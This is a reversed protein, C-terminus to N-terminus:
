SGKGAGAKTVRREIMFNVSRGPLPRALDVPQTESAPRWEFGDRAYLTFVCQRRDGNVIVALRGGGSDGLLMVLRHRGPDNWDSEGLPAGTETLWTVDPIASADSPEGTLFHTDSLAPFARRMASLALTYRELAEDRDAWDLWTIANDQAYANNNGQQTRGFEDGATLMITGRSAFLTALLARQDDFRAEGIQADDTEGEVGNNWSLNDNHGDRNQEGNGANHKKEYAVLDALTMGDHAAIFNVSRSVTQGERGFVDSSGALRTALAGIVGADGRWFRRVDDRYRDNWELYPSRFNGLQYGNPGIDWPEAILVRDCLVPDGAIAELLPANADFTGDVRGLVPALDFRFGDVGAFRVFHRLTDLVMERVVPHDCALTNGTGTDNALRGGPLHRYYAQADLGRLSLTPGLRDSEGTHNFVLDLITGIGAKRLAAVTDRLEVLGGPALRPDLAMFTVPNYGWANSLGLPPLHREDISATIPMLEVASVGLRKLHEIIAPHALAAVTGRHAEPVDPHLRTFSRVNFEYILGGPQFLPPKSPLPKPLPRAIAKPMLPATDVGEKRKAALRWHYRYPRDIEIAYPDTLLKDPDFWFGHEPAYDGDARFGYRTGAAFGPAFVAFVGEGEPRLELREVECAGTDDFISVWSRRSSSSWVAFRIGESTVIAGLQSM